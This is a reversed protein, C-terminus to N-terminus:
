DGILPDPVDMGLRRFHGVNKTFVHAGLEVSREALYCDVFGTGPHKSWRDIAAALRYLDGVVGPLEILSQLFDAVDERTMQKVYRPLTYTLEHVVMPELIVIRNGLQVQQLFLRCEESHEDNTLSHVVVNTDLVGRNSSSM